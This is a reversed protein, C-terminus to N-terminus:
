RNEEDENVRNLLNLEVPNIEAGDCDGVLKINGDKDFEIKCKENLPLEEKEKKKKEKIETM